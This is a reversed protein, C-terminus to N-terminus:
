RDAWMLPGCPVVNQAELTCVQGMHCCWDLSKCSNYCMVDIVLYPYGCASRMDVEHLVKKDDRLIHLTVIQLSPLSIKNSNIREVYCHLLM